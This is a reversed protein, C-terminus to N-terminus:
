TGNGVKGDAWVVQAVRIVHYLNYGVEEKLLHKIFVFTFSGTKPVAYHKCDLWFSLM